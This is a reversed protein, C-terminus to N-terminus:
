PTLTVESTQDGTGFLVGYAANLKQFVAGSFTLPKGGAPDLYTGKFTGTSASFSLKLQKGPTVVKSGAGITISNTICSALGGGSFTLCATPLNLVPDARVYKSGLADCQTTFGALYYKSKGGAQKIWTVNGSLDNTPSAFTLWSMLMGGGTYLPIHLPWYGARSLSASQSVKTGDALTGVLKVQGKSNVKLTGFSDGAPLTSNTDYGPIVLTYDGAFPAGGAKGFVALDGSLLATWTGDSLHGSIQDAQSGAIQFGLTLAPGDHRAIINTASNQTTDLLGSFSYRKTGLLVRGSYKGRPTVSLTLSGASALRIADEQFFLGNYTSSAGGGAAATSASKRPTFKATLMLNTQMVFTLRPDSSNISGTWGAFEQGAAPVATVTYVQGPTLTQADLGSSITGDGDIALTSQSAPPTAQVALQFTTNTFLSGDSVFITIAVTGTAGSVPTLTVTLNSNSGGFVISNTPVLSDGASMAYVTLNSVATDPDGITFPIAATPSNETTTQNPIASITPPSDRLSAVLVNAATSAVTSGSDYVVQATLSYNGAPVSSWTFTYPATTDTGLLATGNYFRVSTITRANASVSAALNITAPAGFTANNVPSTLVINPSPLNTYSVENSYDSELGFTDVATAVFYYTAGEVLNSISITLNTGAAAVNTYTASAVGYYVNYNAIVNADPSSDWALTVSSAALSSPSMFAFLAGVLFSGHAVVSARHWLGTISLMDHRGM